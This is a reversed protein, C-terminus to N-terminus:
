EKELNKIYEHLVARHKPMIWLRVDVLGQAKRKAYLRKMLETKPIAKSEKKREETTKM